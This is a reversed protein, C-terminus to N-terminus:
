VAGAFSVKHRRLMGSFSAVRTFHVARTLTDSVTKCFLAQSEDSMREVYTIVARAHEVNETRTVFQFVQIIQAIANRCMRAHEPDALVEEFRVVESRLSVLAWLDRAASDGISGVLGALMTDDDLVGLGANLRRSAREASRPSFYAEQQTSPDFIYPNIKVLPEKAEAYDLFSNFAQPYQDAFALLYENIGHEAGWAQWEKAAPKRMQVIEVRNRTHAPMADGLGEVGLNTTGFIVSGKPAYLQGLRHEYVFPMLSAQVHRPCKGIEDLCTVIPKAGEIGAHNFANLGYRENPLNRSIAKDFDPVPIQHDGIDLNQCDVIGAFLHNTFVPMARLTSYLATKGVGNEGVVITSIGTHVNTAILEAIQKHSLQIKQM